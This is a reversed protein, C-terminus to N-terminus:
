MAWDLRNPKAPREPKTPKTMISVFTERPKASPMPQGMARLLPEPDDKHPALLAQIVIAPLRFNEQLWMQAYNIAGQRVLAGVRKPTNERVLGYKKGVRAQFDAQRKKLETPGGMMDSGKMSGDLLPLILVHCHPAAEDNHVVASVIPAGFSQEVWQVADNFFGDYDIPADAPLSIVIEIGFVQNCRLSKVGAQKLLDKAFTAVGTATASGRLVRNLGSRAVDIKGEERWEAPIERLNHRSARQIINKDGTLKKIRLVQSYKM